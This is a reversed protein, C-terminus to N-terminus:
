WLSAAADIGREIALISKTHESEVRGESLDLTLTLDEATMKAAKFQQAGITTAAGGQADMGDMDICIGVSKLLSQAMPGYQNVIASMTNHADETLSAKLGATQEDSLPTPNALRRYTASNNDGVPKASGACTDFFDDPLGMEHFVVDKVATADISTREGLHFSVKAFSKADSANWLNAPPSRNVGVYPRRPASRPIVIKSRKHSSQGLAQAAPKEAFFYIADATTIRAPTHNKDVSTVQEDDITYSDLVSSFINRDADISRGFVQQCRKRLMASDAGPLKKKIM